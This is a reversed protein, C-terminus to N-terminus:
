PSGITRIRNYLGAQKLGDLEQTIWDTKSMKEGSPHFM